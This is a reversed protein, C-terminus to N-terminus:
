LNKQWWRDSLRISSHLGFTFIQLTVYNVRFNMFQDTPLVSKKV